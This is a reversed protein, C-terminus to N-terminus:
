ISLRITLHISPPTSSSNMLDTLRRTKQSRLIPNFLQEPHTERLSLQLPLSHAQFKGLLVVENTVAGSAEPEVFTSLNLIKYKLLYFYTYM